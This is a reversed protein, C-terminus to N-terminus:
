EPIVLVTDRGRRRIRIADRSIAAVDYGDVRDGPSVKVFRGNPLRLLAHRKNAPGYVGILTLKRLPLANDITAARAVSASTPLQPIPRAREVPQEASPRSPADRVIRSAPRMTPRLSSGLALDSPALAALRALEAQEIEIPRQTPRDQSRIARESPALAEEQAKLVLAAIAAESPNPADLVEPLPTREASRPRLSPVVSPLAAIIVVRPDTQGRSVFTEAEEDPVTVEPAEEQVASQPRLTPVVSPLAAVVTVPIAGPIFPIAQPPDSLAVFRQLQADDPPPARVEVINAPISIDISDPTQQPVVIAEIRTTAIASWAAGAPADALPLNTPPRLNPLVEPLASIVRVRPVADQRQAPADSVALTAPRLIPLIPPRGDVVTVVPTTATALTRTLVDQGETATDPSPPAEPMPKAPPPPAWALEFRDVSAIDLPRALVVGPAEPSPWLAIQDSVPSLTTSGQPARTLVSATFIEGDRPTRVWPLRAPQSNRLLSSTLAAPLPGPQEQFAPIPAETVRVSVPSRPSLAPPRFTTDPTTATVPRPRAERRLLDDVANNQSFPRDLAATRDPALVIQQVDTVPDLKPAQTDLYRFLGVGSIVALVVLAAVAPLRGTALPTTRDAPTAARAPPAFVPTHTLHGPRERLSFATIQFGRKELFEQSERIVSLPVSALVAADRGDPPTEFVHDQDLGARIRRQHNGIAQPTLPNDGTALQHLFIQDPPLWVRVEAKGSAGRALGALRELADGLTGITLSVHSIEVWAHGAQREFLTVGDQSLDLAHDPGAGSPRTTASSLQTM